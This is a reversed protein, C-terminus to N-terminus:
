VATDPQTERIARLGTGLHTRLLSKPLLLNLNRQCGAGKGHEPAQWEGLSYGATDRSPCLVLAAQGGSLCQGWLCAEERSEERGKVRNVAIDWERSSCAPAPLHSCYFQRRHVWGGAPQEKGSLPSGDDWPQGVPASPYM